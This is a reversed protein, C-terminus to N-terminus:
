SKALLELYMQLTERVTNEINFHKLVRARGREALLKRRAPYNYLEIIADALPRPKAPPILIGSDRDIIVESIGGVATGIAAVGQLMAELLAKPLGERALSPM